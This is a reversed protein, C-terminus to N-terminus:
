AGSKTWAARAGNMLSMWLFPSDATPRLTDETEMAVALAPREARWTDAHDAVGPPHVRQGAGLGYLFDEPLRPQVQLDGHHGAVVEHGM